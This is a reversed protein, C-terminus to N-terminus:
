FAIQFVRRQLLFTKRIVLWAFCKMKIYILNKWVQKWLSTKNEPQM